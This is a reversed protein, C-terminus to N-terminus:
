ILLRYFQYIHKLQELRDPFLFLKLPKKPPLLYFNNQKETLKRQNIKLISKFKSRQPIIPSRDSKITMLDKQILTKKKM